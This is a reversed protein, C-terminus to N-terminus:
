RIAAELFAPCIANYVAFVQCAMHLHLLLCLLSATQVARMSGRAAIRNVDYAAGFM